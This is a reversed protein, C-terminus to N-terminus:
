RGKPPNAPKCNEGVGSSVPETHDDRQSASEVICAVDDKRRINVELRDVWQAKGGIHVLVLGYSEDCDLVTANADIESLKVEGIFKGGPGYVAILRDGGRAGAGGKAAAASVSRGKEQCDARAPDAHLLMLGAAVILAVTLPSSHSLKTKM